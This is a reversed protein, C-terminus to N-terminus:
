TLFRSSRFPRGARRTSPSGMGSSISTSGVGCAKDAANNCEQLTSTPSALGGVPYGARRNQRSAGQNEGRVPRGPQEDHQGYIDVMGEAAQGKWKKILNPHAKHRPRLEAFTQEARLAELAVKTRLAVLFDTGEGSNSMRKM